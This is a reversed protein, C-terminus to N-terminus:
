RTARTSFGLFFAARTPIRALAVLRPFLLPVSQSPLFFVTGAYLMVILTHILWLISLLRRSSTLKVTLVSLVLWKKFVRVRAVPSPLPSLPSLM